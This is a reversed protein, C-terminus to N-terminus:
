RGGWIGRVPRNSDDRRDQGDEDDDYNYLGEFVQPGDKKPETISTDKTEKAAEGLPTGDWDTKKHNM